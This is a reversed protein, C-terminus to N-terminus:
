FSPAVVRCRCSGHSKRREGEGELYIIHRRRVGNSTQIKGINNPM